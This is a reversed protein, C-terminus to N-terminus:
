LSYHLPPTYATYGTTHIRQRRTTPRRSAQAPLTPKKEAHRTRENAFQGTQQEVHKLISALPTSLHSRRASRRARPPLPSKPPPSAHIYSPKQRTAPLHFNLCVPSFLCPFQQSICSASISHLALSHPSLRLPSDFQSTPSPLRSFISSLVSGVVSRPCLLFSFLSLPWFADCDFFKFLGYLRHLSM